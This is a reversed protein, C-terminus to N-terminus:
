KSKDEQQAPAAQSGAPASSAPSPTKKFFMQVAVLVLFVAFAKRLWDAPMLHVVQTAFATGVLAAMAIIAAASLHVHVEPNRSYLFLGLLATPIMVVFSTAQASKQPVAFLLVLAPVALIGGGVGFTGSLVGVGLGLLVLWWWCNGLHELPGSM